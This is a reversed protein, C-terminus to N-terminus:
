EQVACRVTYVMRQFTEWATAMSAVLKGQRVGTGDQM